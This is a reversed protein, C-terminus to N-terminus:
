PNMKKLLDNRNDIALQYDPKIRIAENYAQLAEENRNLKNLVVGKNCWVDHLSQIAIAKNYADLAEENRDLKSLLLGKNYYANDHNPNAEVAKDYANLAEEKRELTELLMAMNYYASDLKPNAEVAKNYANLAEQKRDLGKLLVGMNYWAGDYKENLETAKKYCVLAEEKRGSDNLNVGKNYYPLYYNQDILIAADCDSIAKDFERIESYALGRYIYAYTSKSNLAIAKTFIEIANAYEHKDYAVIGNNYLENFDESVIELKEQGKPTQVSKAKAASNKEEEIRGQVKEQEYKLLENMKWEDFARQIKLHTNTESIGYYIFDLISFLFSGFKFYFHQKLIPKSEDRYAISSKWILYCAICFMFASFVGVLSGHIYGLFFIPKDEQSVYDLVPMVIGGSLIVSLGRFRRSEWFTPKTEPGAKEGEPKLTKEPPGWGDIFFIAGAMIGIYYALSAEEM